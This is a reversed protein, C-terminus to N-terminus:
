SSIADLLGKNLMNILLRKEYSDGFEDELKKVKEDTTLDSQVINQLDRKAIESVLGKMDFLLKLLVDFSAGYTEDELPQHEVGKEDRVFKIVNAKKCASVLYPSHTSILFETSKQSEGLLEELLFIFKARWAPNFHSEPEDLLFISDDRAFLIVATFIQIFQHEGDSLHKYTTETLPKNLIVKLHEDPISFLVHPTRGRNSILNISSLEYLVEFFEQPYKFNSTIVERTKDNIVFDLEFRRESKAMSKNYILACDCLKSLALEMRQSLLIKNKNTDIVLQFSILEEINIIESFKQLLKNLAKKPPFNERGTKNKFIFATILLLKTTDRDLFLTRTLDQVGAKGDEINDRIQSLENRRLDFFLPSITENHGSSYGLVNSPLINPYEATTLVTEDDGVIVQPKKGLIGVVKILGYKKNPRLQYYLEFDARCNKQHNTSNALERNSDLTFFIEAILEILKSKGSGNLGVFCLPEFKRGIERGNAFNFEYDQAANNPNSYRLSLLKM